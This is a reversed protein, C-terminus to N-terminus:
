WDNGPPEWGPSGLLKRGLMKWTGRLVQVAYAPNHIGAAPDHEFLVYNYAAKAGDGDPATGQDDGLDWYPYSGLWTFGLGAGIGSNSGDTLAGLVRELLGHVEEEISEVGGDGDYDGRAPKEFSPSGAGGWENWDVNGAHCQACSEVTPEWDHSQSNNGSHM